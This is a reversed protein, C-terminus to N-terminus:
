ETGVRREESRKASVAGYFAARAEKCNIRKGRRAPEVKPGGWTGGGVRNHPKADGVRARGTGKQRYLKRGSGATESRGRTSATFRRRADLEAVVARHLVHGKPETTFYPGPLDM